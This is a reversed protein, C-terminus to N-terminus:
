RQLTGVGVVADMASSSRDIRTAVPISSRSSPVSWMMSPESYRCLYKFRFRGRNHQRNSMTTARLHERHIRGIRGHYGISRIDLRQLGAGRAGGLEGRLWDRVPGRSSSNHHQGKHAADDRSEQCPEDTLLNIVDELRGNLFAREHAPRRFGHAKFVLHSGVGLVASEGERDQASRQSEHQSDGPPASASRVAASHPCGNGPRQQAADDGGKHRPGNQRPIARCEDLVVLLQGVVHDHREQDM